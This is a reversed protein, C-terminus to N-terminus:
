APVEAMALLDVATAGDWPVAHTVGYVATYEGNQSGVFLTRYSGSAGYGVDALISQVEHSDTVLTLDDPLDNVTTTHTM